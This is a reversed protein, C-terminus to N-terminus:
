GFLLVFYIEDVLDIFITWNMGTGELAARSVIYPVAV